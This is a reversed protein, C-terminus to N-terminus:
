GIYGELWDLFAREDELRTEAVVELFRGSPVHLGRMKVGDKETTVLYKIALRDANALLSDVDFQTYAHHDPYRHHAAIDLQYHVLDSEFADPNGVASVVLVRQGALMAISVLPGGAPDRAGTLDHHSFYLSAGPNYRRVTRQLADLDFPHDSRTVIIADARNLAAIPERQRGAPLVRGDAFPNTADLVLLNVDRALGLHQYGDDLLFVCPAFRELQRLACRHRDRGILVPVGPLKRALWYPEDGCEAPSGLPGDGSSVVFCDKEHASRYGRSLIVPHYQRAQLRAALFAVLPTKGTGGTTLNGVSIVPHPLRRTPLYHCRYMWARARLAAGYLVSLPVSLLPVPRWASTAGTALGTNKELPM